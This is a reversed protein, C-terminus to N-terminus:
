SRLLNFLIEEKKRTELTTLRMEDLRDEYCKNRIKPVLRTEKHQIREIKEIDNKLYPNWVPVAFELHPRIM